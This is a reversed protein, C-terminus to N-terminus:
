AKRGWRRGVLLGVVLGCVIGVAGGTAGSTYRTIQDFLTIVENDFANESVHFGAVKWQGDTKALVVTWKSNLRVSAGAPHTLTYQDHLKGASVVVQRNDLLLRHDVTPDASYGAIVRQQGGTLREVVARVGDHGVAVDGNQWTAIVQPHCYALLADLDGSNFAKSLGERVAQLEAELEPYFDTPHPPTMTVEPEAPPTGPADGAPEQAFGVTTWSLALVLILRSM